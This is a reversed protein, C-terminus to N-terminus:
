CSILIVRGDSRGIIMDLDRLVVCHENKIQKMHPFDNTAKDRAKAIRFIQREGEPTELEEYLGNMALAKTAAIAKTAAKTAQLLRLCFLPQITSKEPQFEYQRESISM